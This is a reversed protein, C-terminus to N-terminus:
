AAKREHVCEKLRLFRALLAPYDGTALFAMSIFHNGGNARDGINRISRYCICFQMMLDQEMWMYLGGQGPWVGQLYIEGSCAIGAKNVSIKQEAFGLDKGLDAMFARGKILFERKAGNPGSEREGHIYGLDQSLLEALRKMNATQSKESM